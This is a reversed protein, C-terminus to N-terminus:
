ARDSGEYEERFGPLWTEVATSLKAAAVALLAGKLREWTHSSSRWPEPSPVAREISRSPADQWSSTRSEVPRKRGALASLLVGGGFAIGIMMMPREDFQARWDVTRAAKSQLESVSQRLEGRQQQIREEIRDASEGM